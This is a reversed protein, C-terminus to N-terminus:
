EAVYSQLHTYDGSLLLVIALIYKRQRELTKRSVKVERELQKLPLSKRNFVYELLIPRNIIMRAVEIAAVRADAHKPSLEVLEQFSLGYKVLMAGFESIEEARTQEIEAQEHAELATKVEIFNTVNDEDDIIDFDSMPVQRQYNTQTRFYDVLRRRIVTEALGLFHVGRNVDFKDIAENLAVLAVSYEDDRNKDIYRRSSQSAIRLVFGDYSQLLETRADDDGGQALELLLNLQDPKETRKGRFPWAVV